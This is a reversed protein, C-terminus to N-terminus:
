PSVEFQASSVRYVLTSTFNGSVMSISYNDPSGILPVCLVLVNQSTYLNLYYRQGFMNWTMIATYQQGDLTPQFVFNSSPSPTFPIYTTM